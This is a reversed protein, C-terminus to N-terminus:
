LTMTALLDAIDGLRARAAESDRDVLWRLTAGDVAMVVIGALDDLERSWTVGATAAARALVDGALAVTTAYQRRAVDGLGPERLARTTIEYTLLQRAPNREIRAWLTALASRLVVEIRDSRPQPGDGADALETVIRTAMAITLDDKSAFCYSVLGLSVGAEAAVRRVTVAGVGEREAITLGADVLQRRRDAIPRYARM